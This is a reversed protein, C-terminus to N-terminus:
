KSVARRFEVFINNAQTRTQRGPPCLPPRDQAWPLIVSGEPLHFVSVGHVHLPRLQTTLGPRGRESLDLLRFGSYLGDPVEDGERKEGGGLTESILEM